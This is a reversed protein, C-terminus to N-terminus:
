IATCYLAATDIAEELERGQNGPPFDRLCRPLKQLALDGPAICDAVILYSMLMALPQLCTNARDITQLLSSNYWHVCPQLLM